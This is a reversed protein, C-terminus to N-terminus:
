ISNMMLGISLADISSNGVFNWRYIPGLLIMFVYRESWKKGFALGKREIKPLEEVIPLGARPRLHFRGENGTIPALHYAFLVEKIRLTLGEEDGLNQIAILICWALPNLQSTSIRFFPQLYERDM